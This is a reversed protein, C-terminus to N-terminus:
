RGGMNWLTDPTMYRHKRSLWAEPLSFPETGVVKNRPISSYLDRVRAVHETGYSKLVKM